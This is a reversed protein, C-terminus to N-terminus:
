LDPRYRRFPAWLATRADRDLMPRPHAIQSM